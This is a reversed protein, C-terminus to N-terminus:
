HQATAWFSANLHSIFTGPHDSFPALKGDFNSKDGVAKKAEPTFKEWAVMQQLPTWAEWVVGDRLENDKTPLASLGRNYMSIPNKRWRVLEYLATPNTTSGPVLSPSGTKRYGDPRSYSVQSIDYDQANDGNNRVSLWIVMQQWDHQTSRYSDQIKPFYWAYM